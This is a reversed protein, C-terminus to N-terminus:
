VETAQLNQQNYLGEWRGFLAVWCAATMSVALWLRECKSTSFCTFIMKYSYRKSQELKKGALEALNQKSNREEFLCSHEQCCGTCQLRSCENDYVPSWSWSCLKHIRRQMRMFINRHSTVIESNCDWKRWIQAGQNLCQYGSSCM